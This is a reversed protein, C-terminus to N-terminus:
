IEPLSVMIRFGSQPLNGVSMAGGHLLVIKRALAIGFLFASIPKKHFPSEFFEAFNCSLNPGDDTVTWAMMGAESGPEVKTWVTKSGRTCVFAFIMQGAQKIREPDALIAPVPRYETHLAVESYRDSANRALATGLELFNVPRPALSLPTALDYVINLLQKSDAARSRLNVLLTQETSSKASLSNQLVSVTSYIVQLLDGVEHIFARLAEDQWNINAFSRPAYFSTGM